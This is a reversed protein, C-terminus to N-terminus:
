IGLYQKYLDKHDYMFNYLQDVMTEYEPVCTRSYFTSPIISKDVSPGDVADIVIGLDFRDNILQLLDYKTIPKGNSIQILGTEPLLIIEVIQKALELTTIGSWISKTYGKCKGIKKQQFFWHFLGEGNAKIEPGIISTRITLDKDNNIEGLNKTMGYVDLADKEDETSYLGKKGSFVCDTSIHLLFSNASIQHLIESLQHPFYSNIYIANKPDNYSGHVLVGVCNIVIHPVFDQIIEILSNTNRVDIIVSDSSVPTRFCLPLLIWDTNEKLYHYIMHGAMGSAGIIMVKKM